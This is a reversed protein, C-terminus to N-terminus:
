REREQNIPLNSRCRSERRCYVLGILPRHGEPWISGVEGHKWGNKLSMTTLWSTFDIAAHDSRGLRARYLVERIGKKVCLSLRNSSHHSTVWGSDLTSERTSLEPEMMWVSQLSMEGNKIPKKGGGNLGPIIFRFSWWWCMAKRLYNGFQRHWNGIKSQPKQFKLGM